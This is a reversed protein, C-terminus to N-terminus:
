KGIQIIYKPKSTGLLQEECKGIQWSRLLDHAHELELSSLRKVLMETKAMAWKSGSEAAKFYWVYALTLDKPLGYIGSEYLLGLREQASDINHEAAYCLNRHTQTILEIPWLARAAKEDPKLMWPPHQLPHLCETSASLQAGIIRECDPCYSDVALIESSAGDVIAVFPYPICIWTLAYTHGLEANFEVEPYYIKLQPFVVGIEVKGPLTEVRNVAYADNDRSGASEKYIDLDSHRFTKIKPSNRGRLREIVSLQESLAHQKTDVDNPQIKWTGSCATLVLFIVVYLLPKLLVTALTVVSNATRPHNLFPLFAAYNSMAEPLSGSRRRSM